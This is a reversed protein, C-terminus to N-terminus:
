SAMKKTNKKFRKAQEFKGNSATALNRAAASLHKVEEQSQMLHEARRKNHDEKKKQKELRAQKTRRDDLFPDGGAEAAVYGPKVERLWDYKERDERARKGWKDKWEQRDEDFVRNTKKRHIDIGKKLAFKQWATLPKPRPPAKERPLQMVPQPLQVLTTASEYKSKKVETPMDVFEGLLAKLANTCSDMLEEERRMPGSVTSVDTVTLLGADLQYESM